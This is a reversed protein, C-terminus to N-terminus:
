GATVSQSIVRCNNHDDNFIGSIKVNLNANILKKIANAPSENLVNPVTVNANISSNETYLIVVGDTHIM